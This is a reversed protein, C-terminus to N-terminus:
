YVGMVYVTLPTAMTFIPNGIANAPFRFTNTDRASLTTVGKATPTYSFTGSTWSSAASLTMSWAHNDSIVLNVPDTPCNTDGDPFFKITYTYSTGLTVITPGTIVIGPYKRVMEFVSLDITNLTNMNAMDWRTDPTANIFGNSGNDALIIGYHRMAEIVVRAGGTYNNKNASYWSDQLRLRMGMSSAGTNGGASHRAPWLWGYGTNLLTFRIAHPIVGRLVAEDYRILFPLIPLGAADASTWNAPRLAATADTMGFIAGFATQWTAGNDPTTSSDTEYLLYNDRDFVLMHQDNSTATARASNLTGEVVCDPPIPYQGSATPSNTNGLVNDSQNQGYGVGQNYGFGVTVKAQTGAVVTYPIGYTLPSDVSGDGGDFHLHKGGLQAMYYANMDDLPDATIDRFLERWPGVNGILFGGFDPGHSTGSTNSQGLQVKTAYSVSAPNTLGGNNTATITHPGVLPHKYTFTGSSPSTGLAIVPPNFTGGGGGDSLAVTIPTTCAPSAPTLAVTFNSSDTACDGFTPGTLTYGTIAGAPAAPNCQVIVYNLNVVYPSGPSDSPISVTATHAGIVTTPVTFAISTWAGVALTAGSPNTTGTCNTFVLTGLHASRGGGINDLTLSYSTTANQVVAGAFYTAGNAIATSGPGVIHLTPNGLDTASFGTIQIGTSAASTGQYGFGAQGIATWTADTYSWTGTQSGTLTVTIASGTLDLKAHVSQGATLSSTVASGSSPTLITDAEGNIAKFQWGTGHTYQLQYGTANSGNVRALIFASGAATVCDFDAEVTYDSTPPLTANLYGAIVNNGSLRSAYIRGTAAVVTLISQGFRAYANAAGYPPVVWAGGVEAGGKVYSALDIDVTAANFDWLLFPSPM